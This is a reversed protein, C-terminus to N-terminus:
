SSGVKNKTIAGDHDLKRQILLIKMMTFGNHGTLMDLQRRIEPNNINIILDRTASGDKDYTLPDGLYAAFEFSSFYNNDKGLESCWLDRARLAKKTYELFDFDEELEGSM